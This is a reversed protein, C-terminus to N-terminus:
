GRLHFADTEAEYGLGLWILVYQLVPRVLVVLVIRLAHRPDQLLLFVNIPADFPKLYRDLLHLPLPPPNAALLPDRKEVELFQDVLM